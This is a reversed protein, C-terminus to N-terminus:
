LEFTISYIWGTLTPLCMFLVGTYTELYWYLALLFYSKFLFITFSQMLSVWNGGCVTLHVIVKMVFHTWTTCQIFTLSSTQLLCHQLFLKWCNFVSKVPKPYANISFAIVATHGTHCKTNMGLWLSPKLWQDFQNCYWDKAFPVSIKAIDQAVHLLSLWLM